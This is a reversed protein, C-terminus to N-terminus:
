ASGKDEDAKKKAGFDSRRKRRQPVNCDPKLVVIEPIIHYRNSTPDGLDTYRHEKRILPTLGSAALKGDDGTLRKLADDVAGKSVGVLNGIDRRGPFASSDRGARRLLVCYVAFATPGLASLYVDIVVNRLQSYREEPLCKKRSKPTEAVSEM